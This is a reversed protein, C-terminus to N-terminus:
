RGELFRRARPGPTPPTRPATSAPAVGGFVVVAADADSIAPPSAPQPPPVGAFVQLVPKRAGVLAVVGAVANALGDHEGGPHDIKGGRWVLGLLQQELVPIDPLRVTLGNVVPEFAEYLDSKSQDAIRYAIGHPEFDKVFTEGAYKDGTVRAIRYQACHAAFREVARRPDFPPPAGQTVVRDVIAVGDRDLHAIALVADDSSGGSMDVFARYSVGPEPGRVAVGRDVAAMIPEPQFASGEPLGPLNLHLRRFKHAPLRRQQQTLYEQDAWSAMSPNARAEPTADAFDPDTTRDAAYWSFLMRPDTGAWGMRCLDFLPVGPRHYISAYSTIWTLADLRHPDPQLAELIDWTRYGHSEDFAALRFTKGHTGVVDGAPLIELFGHGDRREIIKSKIVLREQLVPNVALLKKVLSLDDGAQDEDNALIYCPAGGGSSTLVCYVGALCLDTSKWCKKARGALVLNYRPRGDADFTDLASTFISRRYPEIHDRLRSGDLWRLL